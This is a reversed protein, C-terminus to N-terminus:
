RDMRILKRLAVARIRAAELEGKSLSQVSDELEKRATVEGQDAALMLWALADKRTDPNDSLPGLLRGLNGQAKINGQLAAQLFWERAAAADLPCGTGTESMVGLFNKADSNGADAAIKFYHHADEYRTPLGHDGFYLISGYNMCAEPLNQDAAMKIWDLGEKRTPDQGTAASDSIGDLLLKGLNLRAKASGKEAGKRFWLEAQSRDKKVAVGASYFYGLGGMAEAHGQKAAAEMLGFAKKLDKAVGEGRLYSRAM